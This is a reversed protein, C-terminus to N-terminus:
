IAGTGNCTECDEYLEYTADKPAKDVSQGTGKCDECDTIKFLDSTIAKEKNMKKM